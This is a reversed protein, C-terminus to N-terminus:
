RAPSAPAALRQRALGRNIEAERFGPQLQLAAEYHAVAAAFDGQLVRVNGLNYHAGAFTPACEIAKGYEAAAETLRGQRTLLNGYNSHAEAFRPNLRIATTYAATAAEFQDRRALLVGLNNHALWAAPNKALTDEWLAELSQFAHTYRWTASGLLTLAVGALVSRWARGRVFRAGGAAVLVIPGVCALYQFHDAVFSYRFFYLDFFGLVPALAIIFYGAGLLAARGVPHTRWRWLLSGAVVVGALPLGHPIVRPYLFMLDAPWVTKGLYFWVARGALLAREWLGLGEEPRVSRGIQYRQELVTLGSMLLAAVFLPALRRGDRRDWAGRQWWLILLLVAPLVVTSAKSLMAAMGCVLLGAYRLPSPREDFGVYALLALLFFFASQVNKLETIWAVSEVGVPHVAWLAAGLWAGPIRLRRLLLFLLGANGAHLLINVAHYGVPELGWLRHEIWFTTLTLPYYRSTALESWIRWLGDPATMAPNATLHDDDDWIFGAQLAPHYVAVTLVVLLVIGAATARWRHAGGDAV